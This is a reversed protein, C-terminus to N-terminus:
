DSLSASSIIRLREQEPDSLDVITQAQALDSVAEVTFNSRFDELNRRNESSAINRDVWIYRVPLKDSVRIGELPALNYISNHKYM